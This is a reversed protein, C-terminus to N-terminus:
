WILEESQRVNEIFFFFLLICGLKKCVACIGAAHKQNRQFTRAQNLTKSLNIIRQKSRQGSYFTIFRANRGWLIIMWGQMEIWNKMSTSVKGNKELRSLETSWHNKVKRRVRVGQAKM